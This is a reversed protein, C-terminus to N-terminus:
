QFSVHPAAGPVLFRQATLLALLTFTASPRVELMLEDHIVQYALQPAVADEAMETKPVTVIDDAQACARM